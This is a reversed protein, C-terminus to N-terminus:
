VLHLHTNVVGTVNSSWVLRSGDRSVSGRPQNVYMHTQTSGHKAITEVRTGAMNVRVIEDRFPVLPGPTPQYTSVYCWDGSNACSINMALSWDFSFLPLQSADDLSVRVAANPVTSSPDNSNCWVLYEGGNYTTVDMHGGISTLFRIPKLDPTYLEVGKQIWSVLVKGSASLYLSDIPQSKTKLSPSTTKSDITFTFVEDEALLALTDDPGIDGEGLGSVKNFRTFTHALFKDHKPAHYAWVGNDIIFLLWDPSRRSWRPEASAPIGTHRIFQGYQDYLGFEDQHVLLLWKNGESFPSVSSYEPTIFAKKLALTDGIVGPSNVRGSGKCTPCIM